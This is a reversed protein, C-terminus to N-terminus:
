RFQVEYVIICWLFMLFVLGELLMVDSLLLRENEQEVGFEYFVINVIDEEEEEYENLERIVM